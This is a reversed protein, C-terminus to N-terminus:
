PGDRAEPRPGRAEDIDLGDQPAELQLEELLQAVRDLQPALGPGM